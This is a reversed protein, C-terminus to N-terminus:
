GANFAGWDLFSRFEKRRIDNFHAFKFDAVSRLRIDDNKM